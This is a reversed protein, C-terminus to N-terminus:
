CPVISIKNYIITVNSIREVLLELLLSKLPRNFGFFRKLLM